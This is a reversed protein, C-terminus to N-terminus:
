TNLSCSINIIYIFNYRATKQFRSSDAQSLFYIKVNSNNDYNSFSKKEINGKCSNMKMM